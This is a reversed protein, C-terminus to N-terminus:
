EPHHQGDGGDEPDAINEFSELERANEDESV